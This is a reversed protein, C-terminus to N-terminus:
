TEIGLKERIRQEVPRRDIDLRWRNYLWIINPYLNTVVLRNTAMLFAQLEIDNIFADKIVSVSEHSEIGKQRIFLALYEYKNLMNRYESLLPNNEDNSQFEVHKACPEYRNEKMWVVDFSEVDEIRPLSFYQDGYQNKKIDAVTSHIPSISNLFLHVAELASDNRTVYRENLFTVFILLAVVGTLAQGANSASEVWSTTQYESYVFIAEVSVALTLLLAVWIWFFRRMQKSYM